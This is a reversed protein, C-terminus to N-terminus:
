YKDRSVVLVITATFKSIKRKKLCQTFRIKRTTIYIINNNNDYDYM